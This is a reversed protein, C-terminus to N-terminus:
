LFAELDKLRHEWVVEVGAKVLTELNVEAFFGAIVAVVFPRGLELKGRWDRAKDCCEKVRKFADLQVGVAKAEILVLRQSSRSRVILDAKQSSGGRVKREKSYEGLKIDTPRVVEGRFGSKVYGNAVLRNEIELEQQSKRWHRYQTQANQDAILSCTWKKAYERALGLREGHLRESRWMFRDPDLHENFFRAMAPAIRRLEELSKGSSLREAEISAVTDLGFMQGCKMQSISPALCYRLIRVIRSDGVISDSTIDTFEKTAAFAIDYIEGSQAVSNDYMARLSALYARMELVKSQEIDSAM